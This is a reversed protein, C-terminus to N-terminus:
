RSNTRHDPSILKHEFELTGTDMASVKLIQLAQEVGEQGYTSMAYLFPRCHYILKALTSIPMAGLDDHKGALEWLLPVLRLLRSSTRLV